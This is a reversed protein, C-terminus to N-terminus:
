LITTEFAGIKTADIDKTVNDEEQLINDHSFRNNDVSDNNIASVIEDKMGTEDHVEIKKRRMEDVKIEKPIKNLM